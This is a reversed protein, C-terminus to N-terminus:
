PEGQKAIMERLISIAKRKIREYDANTSPSFQRGTINSVLTVLGRKTMFGERPKQNGKVGQSKEITELAQLLDERTSQVSAPQASESLAPEEEEEQVLGPDVKNLPVEEHPDDMRMPGAPVLPAKPQVLQADPLDAVHQRDHKSHIEMNPFASGQQEQKPMPPVQQRMLLDLRANIPDILRQLVQASQFLSEGQRPQQFAQAFQMAQQLPTPRPPGSPAKRGGGSTRGVVNVTVKQIVNKPKARARKVKEKKPM